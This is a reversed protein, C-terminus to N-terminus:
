FEIGAMRAQELARFIDDIDKSSIEVEISIRSGGGIGPGRGGAQINKDLTLYIKKQITGKITLAIINDYEIKNGACYIAKNTIVLTGQVKSTRKSDRGAIAYGIPGGVLFSAAKRGVGHHKTTRIILEGEGRYYAKEKNHDTVMPQEKKIPTTINSVISGGIPSGCNPCFRVAEKLQIGCNTCTLVQPTGGIPSGCNPCFRVAEKLQIGCNTCTLVQPTDPINVDQEKDYDSENSSQYLTDSTSTDIRDRAKRLLLYVTNAASELDGKIDLILSENKNENDKFDIQLLKKESLRSIGATTITRRISKETQTIINSDVLRDAEIYLASNNKNNPKFVIMDRNDFLYVFLVGEIEIPLKSYGGIYMVDYKIIRKNVYDYCESCLKGTFGWSSDPEKRILGLPKNCRACNGADGAVIKRIYEM